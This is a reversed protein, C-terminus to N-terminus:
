EGLLQKVRAIAEDAAQPGFPLLVLAAALLVARVRMTGSGSRSRGGAHAQERFAAIPEDIATPPSSLQRRERGPEDQGAFCTLFAAM